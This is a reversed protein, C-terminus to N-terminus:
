NPAPMRKRKKNSDGFSKNLNKMYAFLNLDHIIKDKNM